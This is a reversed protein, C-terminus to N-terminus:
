SGQRNHGWLAELIPVVHQRLAEPVRALTEAEHTATAARVKALLKTGAQTLALEQSRGSLQVRKVLGRLELKATLPAMNARKIGLIRGAESQTLGTREAILLILSAETARLDHPALHQHLRLMSAISARRLLYGPLNDLPADM